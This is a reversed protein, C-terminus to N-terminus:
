IREKFTEQWKTTQKIKFKLSVNRIILPIIKDYWRKNCAQLKLVDKEHDMFMFINIMILAYAVKNRATTM